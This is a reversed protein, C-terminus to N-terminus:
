KFSRMASLAQFVSNVARARTTSLLSDTPKERERLYRQLAETIIQAAASDGVTLKSILNQAEIGIDLAPSSVLAESLRAFDLHTEPDITSSLGFYESTLLQEVRMGSVQPLDRVIEVGGSENRSLVTVEGDDMGRVCLPDHSTVIFQVRPFARRLSSMVRMKWRPHLHTEIEDILVVARAAELSRWYDSLTRCIDAALAFVSRYGESLQSIPTLQGHAYVSIGYAAHNILEDEEGVPLITRITKAIENFRNGQLSSLWATPDPLPKRPDFLSRVRDAHGFTRKGQADAFYRHPGYGLVLMTQDLTGDLRRRVPDYVFEAGNPTDHFEIKTEILRDGWLDWTDRGISRAFGALPLRLKRCERTGLLALAIAALCTSKGVANEGLLLLCPLGAKRDRMRPFRLTVDDIARFNRITVAKLEAEPALLNPENMPIYRGPSPRASATPTQEIDRRRARDAATITEIAEVMQRVTSDSAAEFEARLKHLFNRGDNISGLSVNSEALLRAVVSRSAGVFEGSQLFDDPLGHRRELAARWIAVAKRIVGRRGGLLGMDNLDFTAVTTRAKSSNPKAICEGSMLYYLHTSPNDRTPDILLPREQLRVEDTTALFAARRGTVPFADNRAKQCRYCILSLNLWEFALWAYFDSLDASGDFQLSIPRYHSIGETTGV